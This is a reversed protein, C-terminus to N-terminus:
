SGDEYRQALKTVDEGRRYAKLLRLNKRGTAWIGESEYKSTDVHMYGKLPRLAIRGFKAKIADIIAVDEFLRQETYGGVADYMQKSM